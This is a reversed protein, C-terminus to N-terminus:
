CPDQELAHVLRRLVQPSISESVRLVRGQALVVEVWSPSGRELEVFSATVAEAAVDLRRRWRDLRQLDLGEREAFESTSLGSRELADLAARAEVDTWRRRSLYAPFRRPM